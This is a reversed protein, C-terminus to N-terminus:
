QSCQHTIRAVSCVGSESVTICTKFGQNAIECGKDFAVSRKDADFHHISTYFNNQFFIGERIVEDWYKFRLVSSEPVLIPLM